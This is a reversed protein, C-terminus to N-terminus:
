VTQTIEISHGPYDSVLDAAFLKASLLSDLWYRSVLRGSANWVSVSFKM